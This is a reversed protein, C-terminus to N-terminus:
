LTTHGGDVLLVAGTVFAAEDSALFLVCQAVDIPQGLQKLLYTERMAAMLEANQLLPATMATHIFGPAVANVRIGLPALDVAMSRTLGPIASKSTVYGCVGPLAIMSLDSATNVIAGGRGGARMARAAHKAVLMMGKVNVALVEDIVREDIELISSDGAPLIGAHNHVVDLGGLEREAAEIASAVESERTVDATVFVAAGGAANISEATASAGPGDRDLVAVRAGEQAFLEATARGIGAAGGTVLATKGALRM